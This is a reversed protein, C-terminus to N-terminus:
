VRFYTFFLDHFLYHFLIKGTWAGNELLGHKTLLQDPVRVLYMKLNM